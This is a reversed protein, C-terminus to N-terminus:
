MSVGVKLIHTTLTMAWQFSRNRHSELGVGLENWEEVLQGLFSRDHLSPTGDICSLQHLDSHHCLVAIARGVVEHDDKHAAAM